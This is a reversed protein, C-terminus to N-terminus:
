KLGPSWCPRKSTRWVEYKIILYSSLRVDRRTPREVAMPTGRMGRVESVKVPVADGARDMHSLVATLRQATCLTQCQQRDLGTLGM